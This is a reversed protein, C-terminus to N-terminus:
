GGMFFLERGGMQVAASAPEVTRAEAVCLAGLTLLSLDYIPTYPNFIANIALLLGVALYTATIAWM